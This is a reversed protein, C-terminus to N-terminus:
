YGLLAGSLAYVCVQFPKISLCNGMKFYVIMVISFGAQENIVILMSLLLSFLPFFSHLLSLVQRFCRLWQAELGMGGIETETSKIGSMPM